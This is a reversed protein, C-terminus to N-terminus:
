GSRSDKALAARLRRIQERRFTLIEDYTRIRVDALDDVLDAVSEIEAYNKGIVATLRPRPVVGGFRSSLLERNRQDRFFNRYNRLQRVVRHVHNSWDRHFRDHSTLKVHPSKLDLVHWDWPIRAVLPRLVFDPRIETRTADNRLPLESWYWSYGQDVLFEPHREFFDHLVTETTKRDNLLDELEDVAVTGMRAREESLVLRRCLQGADDLSSELLKTQVTAFPRTLYSEFIHFRGDDYTVALGARDLEIMVDHRFTSIAADVARLLDRGTFPKMVIPLSDEIPHLWRRQQERSHASLMLVPLHRCRLGGASVHDDPL